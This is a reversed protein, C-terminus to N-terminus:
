RVCDGAARFGAAEAAERTEFVRTCNPCSYNSCGPRHFVRSRTNGHFPGAADEVRVPSRYEWPPVTNPHSWLGVRAERAQVEARALEPDSSYRTFHWALGAQVLALSLDEGDVYVRAVLRGYRDVDRVDVDAVKGFALKSTFQKARQGFDQGDEPCDIGELRVRVARGDRMVSITDGDAVAVVKGSFREQAAPQGVAVPASLVIALLTSLTAVRM